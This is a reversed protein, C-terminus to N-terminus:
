FRKSVRMFGTEIGMPANCLTASLIQLDLAVRYVHLKEADLGVGDERTAGHVHSSVADPANEIAPNHASSHM